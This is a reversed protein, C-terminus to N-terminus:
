DPTLADAILDSLEDDSCVELELMVAFPDGALGLVDAFAPETKAGQERRAMVASRFTHGGISLLRREVVFHRWGPQERVPLPHGFLEFAWDHARFGAIVPRGGDIWQEIRFGHESSFCAAVHESFHAVDPAHCLVDIDSSPLDLELPPTGAVHPDFAALRDILTLRELAELHTCRVDASM